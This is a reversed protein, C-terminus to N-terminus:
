KGTLKIASPNNKWKFKMAFQAPTMTEQSKDLQAVVILEAIGASDSRYHGDFSMAIVQPEEALLVGRLHGSVADFFRCTRDASSCAVVSGGPVWAVRQVPAMTPVSVVLAGTKVNWVQMTHNGRGSALFTDSPSWALASVQPPSGASELEHLMKGSSVQWMRARHDYHGSVLTKGDLSWALSHVETAGNDSMTIGAKGTRPNWLRVIKDNGSSALTGGGPAWSVATVADLSGELTHLVKGSAADWLLIKKDQGGSAVTRGDPSVAVTLVPATHSDFTRTAKGTTTDWL